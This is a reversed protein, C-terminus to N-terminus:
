PIPYSGDEDHVEKGTCPPNFVCILRLDTKASVCHKEHRNLVYMVGAKIPYKKEDAIVEIEGEGEICYVAEIHNKYWMTTRTGAWIITDHFSFGVGDKKLLLRRSRWNGAGVDYETNIIEELNKVIM